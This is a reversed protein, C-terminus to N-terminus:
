HNGMKHQKPFARDAAADIKTREAPTAFREYSEAAAIHAKDNLPFRGDSKSKPKGGAFEKAPMKRRQKTTLVAM